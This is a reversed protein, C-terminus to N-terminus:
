RFARPGITPIPSLECWRRRGHRAFVTVTVKWGPGPIASHWCRPVPILRKALLRRTDPPMTCLYRKAYRRM